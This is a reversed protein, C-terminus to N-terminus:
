ENYIVICHCLYCQTQQETSGKNVAGGAFASLVATDPDVRVRDGACSGAVVDRNEQAGETSASEEAEM